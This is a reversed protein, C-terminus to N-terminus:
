QLEELVKHMYKVKGTGHEKKLGESVELKKLEAELKNIKETTKKTLSFLTAKASSDIKIKNNKLENIFSEDFEEKGISKISKITIDVCEKTGSAIFKFIRFIFKPSLNDSLLRKSYGGMIIFIPIIIPSFIINLCYVLLSLATSATFIYIASAPVGVALLIKRLLSKPLKKFYSTTASKIKKSPIKDILTEIYAGHNYYDLLESITITGDRFKELYYLENDLWTNFDRTIPTDDNNENFDIQGMWKEFEPLSAINKNKAINNYYYECFPRYLEPKSTIQEKNDYLKGAKSVIDNYWNINNQLDQKAKNLKKYLEPSKILTENEDKTILDKKNKLYKKAEKIMKQNLKDLLQERKERLKKDQEEFKTIEKELNKLEKNYKSKKSKNQSEESELKEIIDQLEKELKFKKTDTDDIKKLKNYDSKWGNVTRKFSSRLYMRNEPANSIDVGEQILEWLLKLGPM